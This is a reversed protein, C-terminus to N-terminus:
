CFKWKRLNLTDDSLYYNNLFITDTTPNYLEIWDPFDGDEDMLTSQNSAM